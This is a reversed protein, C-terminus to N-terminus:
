CWKGKRNRQLRFVFKKEANQCPSRDSFKLDRRGTLVITRLDGKQVGIFSKGNRPLSLLFICVDKFFFFM